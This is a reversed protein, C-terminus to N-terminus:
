IYSPCSRDQLAQVSLPSIHLAFAFINRYCAIHAFHVSSSLGLMNMISLGIKEDSSIIYPSIDFSNLQPFLFKQDHTELPKVGLCVSQRYVALRLTVKVKVNATLDYSLRQSNLVHLQWLLLQSLQSTNVLMSSKM